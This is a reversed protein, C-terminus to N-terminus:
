PTVAEAVRPSPAARLGIYSSLVTTVRGLMPYQPFEIVEKALGVGPVYWRRTRLLTHEYAAETLAVELREIGTVQVAQAFSGAPTDLTGVNLVHYRGSLPIADPNQVALMIAAFAFPVPRQGEYVWVTDPRALDADAPLLPRPGYLMPDIPKSTSSNTFLGRPEDVLPEIRPPPWFATGQGATRLSVQRGGQPLTISAHRTTEWRVVRGEIISSSSEYVRKAGDPLDAATMPEYLSAGAVVPVLGVVLLWARWRWVM